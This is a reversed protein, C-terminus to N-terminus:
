IPENCLSWAQIYTEAATDELLLDTGGLEGELGERSSAQMENGTTQKTMTAQSHIPQLVISEVNPPYSLLTDQVGVSM